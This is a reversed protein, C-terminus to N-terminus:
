GRNRNRVLLGGLGLLCFSVPEPVIHFVIQDYTSIGDDVLNISFATDDAWFGTLPSGGFPDNNFGYGYIHIWATPDEVVTLSGFIQGGHLNLITYDDCEIEYFEGGNITLESYASVSIRWIGGATEPIDLPNTDEIIGTSWELLTLAHGEGGTMLFTDHDILGLNGFEDGDEVLYDTAWAGASMVVLMIIVITKKM